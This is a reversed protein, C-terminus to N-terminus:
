YGMWALLEGAAIRDDMLAAYEALFAATLGNLAAVMSAQEWSITGAWDAANLVSESFTM